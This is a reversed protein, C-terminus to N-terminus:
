HINLPPLIPTESTGLLVIILIMIQKYLKHKGFLHQIEDCHYLQKSIHLLLLTIYNHDWIETAYIRLPCRVMGGHRKTKGNQEYRLWSHWQMNVLYVWRGSITLYVLSMENVSDKM